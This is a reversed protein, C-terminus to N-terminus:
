PPPSVLCLTHKAPLRSLTEPPLTIGVRDVAASPGTLHPCSSVSPYLLQPHKVLPVKAVQFPGVILHLLNLFTLLIHISFCCIFLLNNALDQEFLLLYSGRRVFCYPTLFSKKISTYNVSLLLKLHVTHDNAVHIYQLTIVTHRTLM